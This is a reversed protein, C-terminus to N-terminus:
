HVCARKILKLLLDQDFFEKVGDKTSLYTSIAHDSLVYGERIGKIITLLYNEHPATYPQYLDRSTFTFVPEGNEEGLHLLLNYWGADELVLSGRHAVATLDIEPRYSLANEQRLVDLFQAKRIRYMRALTPAKAEKQRHIFAVGGGNWVKASKAFYMTYPIELAKEATPLSKDVCGAYTKAAGVPRGGQVYCLLRSKLLNSGYSAYWVYDSDQYSM